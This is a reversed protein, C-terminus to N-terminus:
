VDYIGDVGLLVGGAVLAAALLRSGWRLARGHPGDTPVRATLLILLAVAIVMSATTLLVGHDAGAGLAIVLLAPRAVLPIAIPVLAARRGAPEPSPPRRFLDGAGTLLAVIGAAIRFAPDSVHLADLLPPALASAACVGVAGITGGLAALELSSPSSGPRTRPVGFAARVPNLTLLLVVAWLWAPPTQHDAESSGGGAAARQEAIPVTHILAALAHQQDDM